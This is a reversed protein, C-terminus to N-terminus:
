SLHPTGVNDTLTGLLTTDDEGRLLDVILGEGHSAGQGAGAIQPNSVIDDHETAREFDVPAEFGHPDNADPASAPETEPEDHHESANGATTDDIRPAAPPTPSNIQLGPEDINNAGDKAEVETVTASHVAPIVEPGSSGM